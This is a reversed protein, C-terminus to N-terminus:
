TTREIVLSRLNCDASASATGMQVSFIFAPNTSMDVTGSAGGSLPAVSLQWGVASPTPLILTAALRESTTTIIYLFGELNWQGRNANSALNLTSTDLLATTALYMRFRYSVALGTSNLWDGSARFRYVTDAAASSITQSFLSTETTSNSVTVATGSRALIQPTGITGPAVQLWTSGNSLYMTGTDTAYYFYGSNTAAAAPRGALAGGGHITTWPLADSDGAAHHSAHTVGSAIQVWSTGNSEYLTGGDVNTATYLYGNNLSSANPRSALTGGNHVTTWSLPDSGGLLHSVAHKTPVRPLKPIYADPMYDRTAGNTLRVVSGLGDARIKALSYRSDGYVLRHFYIYGDAGWSGKSNANGDNLLTTLSTGDRKVTRLGWQGVVHTSDPAAFQTLILITQGDFSYNPDTNTTTSGDTTLRIAIGGSSSVRFVDNIYCFVIETGDPSCSTDSVGTSLGTVPIVSPTGGDSRVSQIGTIGGGGFFIIDRGNPHWNPTGLYSTSGAWTQSLIQTANSGDLNCTWLSQKSYDSDYNTLSAPARLFLLRSGDPSVKPWWSQYNSDNTIQRINSGDPEMYFIESNNSGTNTRNFFIGMHQPPLNGTAVQRFASLGAYGSAAGKNATKETAALDTTLNGIDNQSLTIATGTKGNISQVATSATHQAAQAASQADDIDSGRKLTGNTNHEVKLFDNLIDGWTGDDSGPTPLRSM